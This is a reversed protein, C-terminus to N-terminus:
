YSLESVYRKLAEYERVIEPVFTNILFDKQNDLITLDSKGHVITNRISRFTNWKEADFEPWVMAM